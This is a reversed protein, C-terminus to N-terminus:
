GSCCGAAGIAKGGCRVLMGGLKTSIVSMGCCGGQRVRQVAQWLKIVAGPIVLRCWQRESAHVLKSLICLRGQAAEAM